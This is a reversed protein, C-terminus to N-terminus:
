TQAIWRVTEEIWDCGATEEVFEDVDHMGLLLRLTGPDEHFVLRAYVHRLARNLEGHRGEHLILRLEAVLDRKREEDHATREALCAARWSPQALYTLAWEIHQVAHRGIVDTPLISAFYAVQEHLPASRLTPSGAVVAKAWRTLAGVNDAGRRDLVMWRIESQRRGERFDVEADDGEAAVAKLAVRQYARTQKHLQRRRDRAMKRARSPLVSEILDKRKEDHNRVM